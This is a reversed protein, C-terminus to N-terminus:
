LALSRTKKKGGSGIYTRLYESGPIKKGYGGDVAGGPSNDGLADDTKQRIDKNGLKYMNKKNKLEVPPTDIHDKINGYKTNSIHGSNKDIM